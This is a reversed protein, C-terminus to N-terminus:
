KNKEYNSHQFIQTLFFFQGFLRLPSFTCFLIHLNWLVPLETLLYVPPPIKSKKRRKKASYHVKVTHTKSMNLKTFPLGRM